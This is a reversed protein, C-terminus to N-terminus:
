GCSKYVTPPHHNFPISTPKGCVSTIYTQSEKDGVQTTTSLMPKNDSHFM